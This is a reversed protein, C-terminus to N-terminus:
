WEIWGNDAAYNPNIHNCRSCIPKENQIVIERRKVITMELIAGLKVENAFDSRNIFQSGQPHMVEYDGREFSAIELYIEPIAMSSTILNRIVRRVDAGSLYINYPSGEM